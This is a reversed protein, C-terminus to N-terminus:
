IYGLAARNGEYDKIYKTVVISSKKVQQGQGKGRQQWGAEDGNGSGVNDINGESNGEISNSV